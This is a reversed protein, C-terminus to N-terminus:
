DDQRPQDQRPKGQDHKRKPGRTLVEQLRDAYAARAPADMAAIEALWAGQAAQQVGSAALRQQELVASVRALDFPVARLATVAEGYLAQRAERTMSGAESSKRLQRFIERRRDKELAAIYPTGFDRMSGIPKGHPGDFRYAAGAVLGVVLLNVGLSVALAWRMWKGNEVGTQAM